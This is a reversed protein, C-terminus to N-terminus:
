LSVEMAAAINNLISFEYTNGQEIAPPEDGNWTLNEPFSVTPTGEAIIIFHYESVKGTLPEGLTLTLDNTRDTFVYLTNPALTQELTTDPITLTPIGANALIAAIIAEKNATAKTETAMDALIQQSTSERATDELDHLKQEYLAKEAEAAAIKARYEAKLADLDSDTIPTATDTPQCASPKGAYIDDIAFM